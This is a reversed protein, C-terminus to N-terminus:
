LYLEIVISHYSRRQDKKKRERQNISPFLLFIRVIFSVRCTCYCHVSEDREGEQKNEEDSQQIYQRKVDKVKLTYM